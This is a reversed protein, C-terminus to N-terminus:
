RRVYVYVDAYEALPLPLSQAYQSVGHRHGRGQLKVYHKGDWGYRNQKAIIDRLVTVAMDAEGPAPKGNEMKVTFRYASTRPHGNRSPRVEVPNKM